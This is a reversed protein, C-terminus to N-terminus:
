LAHLDRGAPGQRCEAYGGGLCRPGRALMGCLGRGEPGQSPGEGGGGGGLAQM